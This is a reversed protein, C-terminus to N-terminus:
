LGCLPQGVLLLSRQLGGVRFVDPFFFAEPSGVTQKILIQETLDAGLTQTSYVGSRPGSEAVSRLAATQHALACALFRLSCLFSQLPSPRFRTPVRRMFSAISFAIMQYIQM